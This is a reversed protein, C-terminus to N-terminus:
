QAEGEAAILTAHAAALAAVGSALEEEDGEDPGSDRIALALEECWSEAYQVIGRLAALLAPAAHILRVNGDDHAAVIEDGRDGEAGDEDADYGEAAWDSEEAVERVIYGGYTDMHSEVEWFPTGPTHSM